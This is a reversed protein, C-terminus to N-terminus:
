WDILRSPHKAIGHRTPDGKYRLKWKNAGEMQIDQSFLWTLQKRAMKTKVRRIQPYRQRAYNCIQFYLDPQLQKDPDFTHMLEREFAEMRERDVSWWQKPRSIHEKAVIIKSMGWVRPWNGGKTWYTRPARTKAYGARYRLSERFLRRCLVEQQERSARQAVRRMWDKITLTDNNLEDGAWEHRLDSLLLCNWYFWARHRFPTTPNFGSFMRIIGDKHILHALAFPALM